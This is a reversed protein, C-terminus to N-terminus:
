EVRWRKPTPLQTGAIAPFTYTYPIHAVSSPARWTGSRRQPPGHRCLPAIVLTQGKGKVKVRYMHHFFVQSFYQIQCNKAQYYHPLKLGEVPLGIKYRRRSAPTLKVGRINHRMRDTTNSSRVENKVHVNGTVTWVCLTVFKQIPPTALTV